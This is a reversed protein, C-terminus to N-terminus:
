PSLIWKRKNSIYNITLPMVQIFETAKKVLFSAYTPVDYQVARIPLATYSIGWDNSSWSVLYLSEEITDNAEKEGVIGKLKVIYEKFM